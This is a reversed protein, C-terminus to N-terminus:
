LLVWGLLMGAYAFLVGGGGMGVATHLVFFLHLFWQGNKWQIGRDFMCHGSINLSKKTRTCREEENNKTKERRSDLQTRSGYPPSSSSYMRCVM